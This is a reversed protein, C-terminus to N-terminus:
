GELYGRYLENIRDAYGKTTDNPNDIGKGGYEERAKKVAKDWADIKGRIKADM